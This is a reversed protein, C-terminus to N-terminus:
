NKNWLCPYRYVVSILVENFFKVIGASVMILIVHDRSSTILSTIPWVNRQNRFFFLVHSWSKRQTTQPFRAKYRWSAVRGTGTLATSSSRSNSSTILWLPTSVGARCWYSLARRSSRSSIVSTWQQQLVWCPPYLYISIVRGNASAAALMLNVHARLAPWSGCCGGKVVLTPM